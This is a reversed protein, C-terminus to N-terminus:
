ADGGSGLRGLEIEGRCDDSYRHWEVYYRVGSKKGERLLKKAQRRAGEDTKATLHIHDKGNETWEVLSYSTKM